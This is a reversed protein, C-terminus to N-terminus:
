QPVKEFISDSSADGNSNKLDFTALPTVGDDDYRVLTKATKDIKDRNTLHKRALTAQTKVLALEDTVPTLDIAPINNFVQTLDKNDSGKLDVVAADIEASTAIGTLDVTLTNNFVETLDKDEAGKIDAVAIAISADLEILSLDNLAEITAEKALVTSAEIEALSPLAAIGANDPAVYASGALRTSTAVDIFALEPALEVRVEDAISAASPAAPINAIAAEVASQDAPDAPLNDTKAKIAGITSEKALVTSAEVQALSLNNLATIDGQSAPVAPLNDTKAKIATIGANDPATYSASALRTNVTAEKALITSAEVQALSLNNLGALTAQTADHEAVLIVQRADAQAKTELLDIKAENADVAAIIAVQAADLEAKTPADYDALATDVEANFQTLTISDLNTTTASVSQVIDFNPNFFDEQSVESEGRVFLSGTGIKTSGSLFRVLYQGDPVGSLSFTGTYLGSGNDTLTVLAGQTAGAMTYVRATVTLGADTDIAISASGSGQASGVGGVVHIPGTTTASIISQGDTRYLKGGELLLAESKKNDLKLNAISSNIKVQNYFEWTIAGFFDRIGAETTEFYNAWAAIRQIVTENNSDTIDVELNSGDWSFETVTEGDTNFQAYISNIVQGVLVSFGSAGSIANGTWGTYGKKTVRVRYSAGTQLHYYNLSTGAVVENVVETATTSNYIQVRSGAVLNSITSEVHDGTSDSYVLPLTAGNVATITGTTVIM